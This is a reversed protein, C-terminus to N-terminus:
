WFTCNSETRTKQTVDLRATMCVIWPRGHNHITRFPAQDAERQVCDRVVTVTCHTASPRGIGATFLFGTALHLICVLSCCNNIAFGSM